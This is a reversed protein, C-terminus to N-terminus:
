STFFINQNFSQSVEAAFNHCSCGGRYLNASIHRHLPYIGSAIGKQELGRFEARDNDFHVVTEGPGLNLNFIALRVNGVVNKQIGAQILM